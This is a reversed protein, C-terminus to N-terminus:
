FCAFDASTFRALSIRFFTGSRGTSFSSSIATSNFSGRGAYRTRRFFAAFAATLARFGFDHHTGPRLGRRDDRPAIYLDVADGCDGSGHEAHEELDM